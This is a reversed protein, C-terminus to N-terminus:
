KRTEPHSIIMGTAGRAAVIKARHKETAVADISCDSKFIIGYDRGAAERTVYGHRLDHEMAQLDRQLPDGWGGGGNNTACVRTGAPVKMWAKSATFPPEGPKLIEGYGAMGDKGGFLGWPPFKARDFSLNAMAPKPTLVEMRTGLGGRWRGAGGSDPVLEFKTVLAESENEEVEIPVRRCDGHTTTHL